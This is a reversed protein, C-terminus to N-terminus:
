TGPMSRASARSRTSSSFRPTGAPCPLCRAKAAEPGGLRTVHDFCDLIYKAKKNPHRLGERSAALCVEKVQAARAAPTLAALATYTVRRYNAQNQILGRHGAVGQMTSFSQLLFHWVFDPRNLDSASEKLRALAPCQERALGRVVAVLRNRTTTTNM